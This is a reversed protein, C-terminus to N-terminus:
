RITQAATAPAQRELPLAHTAPELGTSNARVLHRDRRPEAPTARRPHSAQPHAPHGRGHEVLQRRAAHLAAPMIGHRCLWLVMAASKHGALNDWVLLLRLPPLDEPSTVCETLGEQWAQWAARTAAPDAPEARVPLAAVIAALQEKLWGHLVPNTCRSVPRLHVQGTAPHFLTLIKRTGGRVYEHPRTAPHGQPRWRSGPHPVAQFPGAEDECWVALGPSAGLTYAREILGKKGGCGSRHRQRRGRAQTQAGGRRHHV